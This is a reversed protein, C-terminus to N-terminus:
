NQIKGWHKYRQMGNHEVHSIAHHSQFTKMMFLSPLYKNRIFKAHPLIYCGVRPEGSQQINHMVNRRTINILSYSQLDRGERKKYTNVEKYIYVCICTYGHNQREM